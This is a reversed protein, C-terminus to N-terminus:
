NIEWTNTIVTNITEWTNTIATNITDIRDKIESVTDVTETIIVKTDDYTDKLDTISQKFEDIKDESWSLSLRIEDVYWKTTDLWDIITNKIDIAWSLTKNYTDLVQEKSPIDTVVDNYTTWFSVIFENFKEIWLINWIFWSFSPLKFISVIYLVFIILLILFFKKM